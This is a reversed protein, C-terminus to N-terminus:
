LARWVNEGMPQYTQCGALILFPTAVAIALGLWIAIIILNRMEIEQFMRFQRAAVHQKSWRGGSLNSPQIGRVL